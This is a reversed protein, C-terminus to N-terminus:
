NLYKKLDPFLRTQVAPDSLNEQTVVLPDINQVRKPTGGNLKDAVAIVTDYGMRFPDQVVLSDITGNKLGDLLSPSSDFGVLKVKSHRSELAKAAGVASSENSAFLADLDPYATLMNESVALAQAFDSNGYRKDLIQIQPANTHIADEFGKERAMTSAAGAQVAVIAVKGKGNLIKIMREAALAGAHYNDTAVQATFDDSDLPSDFIVIPIHAAAARGVVSVLAKSDVPALAIADMHQNIMSDVIQVEGTFDTEATPGNWILDIKNERAAKVAGAHVSQWFIHARGKPIMGV